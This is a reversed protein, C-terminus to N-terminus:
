RYRPLPWPVLCAVAVPNQSCPCSTEELRATRGGQEETRITLGSRLFAEGDIRFGLPQSKVPRTNAKGESGAMIQASGGDAVSVGM